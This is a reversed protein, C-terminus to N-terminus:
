AASVALRPHKTLYQIEKFVFEYALLFLSVAATTVVPWFFNALLRTIEPSPILTMLTYILAWLGGTIMSVIFWLVGPKQWEDYLSNVVVLSPLIGVSMLVVAIVPTFEIQM